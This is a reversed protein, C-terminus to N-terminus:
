VLVDPSQGAHQTLNRARGNPTYKPRLSDWWPGFDEEVDARTIKQGAITMNACKIAAQVFAFHHRRPIRLNADDSASLGAITPPERWYIQRYVEVKDPPSAFTWTGEVEDPRGPQFFRSEDLTGPLFGYDNSGVRAAETGFIAPDPVSTVGLWKRVKPAGDDYAPWDYPGQYGEQADEEALTGAGTGGTITFSEGDTFDEDTDLVAYKETATNVLAIVTGTSGSTTGVFPLGVDAEVPATTFADISVKQYITLVDDWVKFAPADVDFALRQVADLILVIQEEQLKNQVAQNVWGAIEELTM